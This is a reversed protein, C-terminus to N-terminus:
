PAVATLRRIRSKMRVLKPWPQLAVKLVRDIDQDPDQIELEPTASYDVAGHGLTGSVLMSTRPSEIIMTSKSPDSAFMGTM